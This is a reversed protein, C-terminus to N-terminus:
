PSLLIIYIYLPNITFHHYHAIIIHYLSLYSSTLHITRVVHSSGAAWYSPLEKLFSFRWKPRSGLYRSIYIYISQNITKGALLLSIAGGQGIWWSKGVFSQRKVNFCRQARAGGLASEEQTSDSEHHGCWGGWRSRGWRHPCRPPSPSRAPMSSTWKVRQHLYSISWM